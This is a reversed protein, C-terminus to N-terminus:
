SWKLIFFSYNEKSSFDIPYVWKNGGVDHWQYMTVNFETKLLSKLEDINKTKYSVTLSNIANQLSRFVLPTDTRSVELLYSM